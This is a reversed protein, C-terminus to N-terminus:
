HHGGSGGAGAAVPVKYSEALRKQQALVQALQGPDTAAAVYDDGGARKALDKGAAIRQDPSLSTLREVTGELGATFYRTEVADRAFKNATDVDGQRLAARFQGYNQGLEVRLTHALQTADEKKGGYFDTAYGEVRDTLKPGFAEEMYDKKARTAGTGKQITAKGTKWAAYPDTQRNLEGVLKNVIDEEAM